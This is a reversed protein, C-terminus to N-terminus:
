SVAKVFNLIEYERERCQSVLMGCKITQHDYLVLEKSQSQHQTKRKGRKAMKKIKKSSICSKEAAAAGSAGDVTNTSPCVAAAAPSSSSSQAVISLGAMASAIGVAAGDPFDAECRDADDSVNDGAAAVAVAPADVDGHVFRCNDGFRCGSESSYVMCM